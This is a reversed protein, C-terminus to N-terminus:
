EARKLAQVYRFRDAPYLSVTCYLMGDRASVMRHIVRLTPSGPEASLRRAIAAPMACAGIDQEIRAITVKYRREILPYVPGARKGIQAVAAKFRPQLYYETWSIPLKEGAPTRLARVRIWPDGPTCGLDAALEASAAVEGSDIPRVHTSDLFVLLESLSGVAVAYRQDPLRAKVVTGVRPRRVIMGRKELQDLASRVTARSVGASEALQQETPLRAGVRYRGKAIDDLLTNELERYARVPGDQVAASAKRSV